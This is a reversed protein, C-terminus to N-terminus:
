EGSHKFSVYATYISIAIEHWESAPLSVKVRTFAVHTSKVIRLSIM